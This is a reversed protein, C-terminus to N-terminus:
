RATSTKRSHLPSSFGAKHLDRYTNVSSFRRRGHQMTFSTRSNFTPNFISEVCQPSSESTCRHLCQIKLNWRFCFNGASEDIRHGEIVVFRKRTLKVTEGHIAQTDMDDRYKPALLRKRPVVQLTPATEITEAEKVLKALLHCLLYALADVAFLLKRMM